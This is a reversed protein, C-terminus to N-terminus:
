DNKGMFVCGVYPMVLPGARAPCLCGVDLGKAGHGALGLGCGVNGEPPELSRREHAAPRVEDEGQWCGAGAGAGGVGGGRRCRRRRERSAPRVEDGQVARRAERGRGRQGLGASTCVPRPPQIPPPAYMPERLTRNPTCTYKEVDLICFIRKSALAWCYHVALLVLIM